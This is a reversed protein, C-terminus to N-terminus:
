RGPIFAFGEGLDGIRAGTADYYGTCVIENPQDKEQENSTLVIFRPAPSSVAKVYAAALDDCAPLADTHGTGYCQVLPISAVAEAASNDSSEDALRAMSSELRLWEDVTLIMPTECGIAHLAQVGPGRTAKLALSASDTFSEYIRKGEDTQLFYYGGVAALVITVVALGALIMLGIICGSRQERPEAM